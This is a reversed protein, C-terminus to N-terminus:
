DIGDFLESLSINFAKALKDMVKLTINRKGNEIGALYTRDLGAMLAFKEQSLGLKLRLTRIREGFNELLM